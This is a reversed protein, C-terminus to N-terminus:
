PYKGLSFCLFYPSFDAFPSSYWAGGFLYIIIITEQFQLPIRVGKLSFAVLSMIIFSFGSIRIIWSVFDFLWSNSFFFILVIHLLLLEPFLLMLVYICLRSFLFIPILGFFVSCCQINVSRLCILVSSFYLTM